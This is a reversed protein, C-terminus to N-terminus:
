KRCTYAMGMQVKAGRYVEVIELGAQKISEEYEQLSFLRILPHHGSYYNVEGSEGILYHYTIDVTNNAKRKVKEMRVIQLDPNVVQDSVIVDQFDELTSWPTLLLVGGEDLHRSFSKLAKHLDEVSQVFGISGYLCVIVGYKEKLNFDTMDSQFFPMGPYRQRATALMETSLDLGAVKFHPTFFKLHTGTGCAIDLLRNNETLKYKRISQIVFNSEEQYIDEKYYMVDYYKAFQDFTDM